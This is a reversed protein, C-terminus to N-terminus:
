DTEPHQKAEIIRSITLHTLFYTQESDLIKKISEDYFIVADAPFEEDWGTLAITIPIQPLANVRIVIDGYPFDIQTGGLPEVAQLLKEPEEGFERIIRFREGENGRETFGVGRFQKSTILNGIPNRNKSDSYASLVYFVTNALFRGSREETNVKKENLVDFISGDETNVTLGLFNISREDPFGHSGSLEQIKEKCVDWTWLEQPTKSM